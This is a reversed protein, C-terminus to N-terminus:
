RVVSLVVDDIAVGARAAAGSVIQVVVGEKADMLVMGLVHGAPADLAVEYTNEQAKTPAEKPAEKPAQACGSL